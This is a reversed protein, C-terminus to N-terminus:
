RDFLYSKILALSERIYYTPILLPTTYGGYTSVLQYGQREALMKARYCHYDNSIIKIRLQDILVGADAEIVQRSYALNEKTNTSADETLIREEPFGHDILYRKMAEAETITEGSGQGGSVVIKEEGVVELAADLRQQLTLSVREGRLGAGLIILYDAPERDRQTAGSVIFATSIGMVALVALCAPLAIRRVTLLWHAHHFHRSLGGLVLMVIGALLLYASFAVPGLLLTSIFYYLVLCGGLIWLIWELKQVREVGM